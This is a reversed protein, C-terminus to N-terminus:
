AACKQSEMSGHYAWTRPRAIVFLVFLGPATFVARLSLKRNVLGAQMAPTRVVSGFRLSGHPRCFNYYCRLLELHDNLTRKKRAHCPSRRNLYASGRRITLNLREIFATNLKTSDESEHLADELMLESGIVLKSGVRAVRNRKIKKIVQAYVGGPAFLRRISPGYFKFGDTTILRCSNTHAAWAISRVFQLTNRLSRAGVLTGAWLRSWVEIGAFVWTQRKRSQLFTNLEDLQLEQLDFSRARIRNFVRAAAAALELWRAVTNWSLRELRAIASKSVGEVSLAAVRDFTRMPRQLRKYPTGATAGFTRSCEKCRYRRRRGWKVKSFGHLAINGRDQQAHLGCEENPCAPRRKTGKKL